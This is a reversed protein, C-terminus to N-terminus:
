IPILLCTTFIHICLSRGKRSNSESIDKLRFNLLYIQGLHNEFDTNNISLAYDIYRHTFNLIKKRERQSCVIHSYPDYVCKPCQVRM